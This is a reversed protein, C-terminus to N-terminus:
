AWRTPQRRSARTASLLHLCPVRAGSGTPACAGALSRGARDSRTKSTLLTADIERAPAGAMPRRGRSRSLERISDSVTKYGQDVNSAPPVDATRHASNACGVRFRRDHSQTRRPLGTSSLNGPLCRVVGYIAIPAEPPLGQGGPMGNRLLWAAQAEPGGRERRASNTHSARSACLTEGGALPVGTARDNAVNIRRAEAGTRLSGEM